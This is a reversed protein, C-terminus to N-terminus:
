AALRRSCPACFFLPNDHQPSKKRQQQQEAKAQRRRRQGDVLVGIGVTHHGVRVLGHRAGLHEDEAVAHHLAEVQRHLQFGLLVGGTFRQQQAVFQEGRHFHFQTDLLRLVDGAGRVLRNAPYQRRAAAHAHGGQGRGVSGPGHAVLGLQAIGQAVRAQLRQDIAIRQGPLAPGEAQGLAGIATVAVESGLAAIGQIDGHRFASGYDRCARAHHHLDLVVLAATAVVGRAVEHADQM